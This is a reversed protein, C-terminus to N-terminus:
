RYLPIGYDNYRDRLIRYEDSNQDYSVNRHTVALAYYTNRQAHFGVLIRHRPQAGDEDCFKLININFGQKQALVFNKVEFGPTYQFRNGPTCLYELEDQDDALAELLLLAAIAADFNTKKLAEIENQVEKTVILIFM